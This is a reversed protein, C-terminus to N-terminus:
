RLAEVILKVNYKMMDIYTPAPGSTSSISHTYLNTIVKTGTENAIQEALNPNAGAELFIAPAGMQKIQKILSTMQQASPSAESSLSPIVTGVVTFGYREAFYGFTEHNTVLLRHAPPIQSVQEKIWADLSYLDKIYAKANAAYIQTGGPDSQSLGDRINEVYKVVNIPDLWFHPDGMPHDGGPDSRPKLGASAEIVLREGGANVLLPGLFSELGAGNIILITSEAIRTVDRPTPQYSHPDVDPQLLVNVKLRDGAVHRSIDALFTEVAMVQTSPLTVPKIGGGISCASCIFVLSPLLLITKCM